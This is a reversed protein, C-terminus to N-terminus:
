FQSIMPYIYWSSTFWFSANFTISVPESGAEGCDGRLKQTVKGGLARNELLCVGFLFLALFDNPLITHKTFVKKIEMGSINQQKDHAMVQIIERM